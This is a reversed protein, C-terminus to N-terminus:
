LEQIENWDSLLHTINVGQDMCESIAGNILNTMEKQTYRSTSKIVTYGMITEVEGYAIKLSQKMYDRSVNQDKAFANCLAHFLRSSRESRSNGELTITIKVKKDKPWDKMKLSIEFPVSLKSLYEYWSVTQM